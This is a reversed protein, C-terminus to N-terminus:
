RFMTKWPCATVVSDRDMRQVESFLWSWFRRSQYASYASHVPWLGCVDEDGVPASIGDYRKRDRLSPDECFNPVQLPALSVYCGNLKGIIHEEVQNIGIMNHALHISTM